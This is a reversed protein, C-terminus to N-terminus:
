ELNKKNCFESGWSCSEMDRNSVGEETSNMKSPKATIEIVFIRNALAGKRPFNLKNSYQKKM